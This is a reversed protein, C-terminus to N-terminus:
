DKRMLMFQLYFIQDEEMTGFVDYEDEDFQYILGSTASYLSKLSGSNFFNYFLREENPISVIFSNRKADYYMKNGFDDEVQYIGMGTLKTFDYDDYIIHKPNDYKSLSNKFKFWLNYMFQVHNLNYIPNDLDFSM